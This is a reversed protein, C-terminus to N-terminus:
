LCALQICAGDLPACISCSANCCYMGAGCSVDGCPEGPAEPPPNTPLVCKHGRCVPQDCPTTICAIAGCDADTTCEFGHDPVCIQNCNPLQKPSYGEVCLISIAPCIKALGDSAEGLDEDYEEGEVGVACGLALVAIWSWVINKM